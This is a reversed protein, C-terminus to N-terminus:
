VSNPDKHKHKHRHEHRHKHKHKGRHRVCFPHLHTAFGLTARAADRVVGAADSADLVDRGFPCRWGAGGDLCVTQSESVFFATQRASM